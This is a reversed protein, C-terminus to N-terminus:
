FEADVDTLRRHGLVHRAVPVRRGLRPPREEGIMDILDHGGIEQDHRGDRISQQEHQDDEGMLTTADSVDRDGRM